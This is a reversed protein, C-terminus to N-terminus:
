VCPDVGELVPARLRGCTGPCLEGEGYVSVPPRARSVPLDGQGRVMSPRPSRQCSQAPTIARVHLIKYRTDRVLPM